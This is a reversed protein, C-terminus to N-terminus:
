SARLEEEPWGLRALEDRVQGEVEPGRPEWIPIRGDLDPWEGGDALRVVVTGGAKAYSTAKMCSPKGDPFHPRQEIPISVAYVMGVVVYGLHQRDFAIPVVWEGRRVPRVALCTRSLEQHGADYLVRVSGGPKASEFAVDAGAYSRPFALGARVVVFDGALISEGATVEVPKTM